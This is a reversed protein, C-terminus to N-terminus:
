ESSRCTEYLTAPPNYHPPDPHVGSIRIVDRSYSACRKYEPAGSKVSSDCLAWGYMNNTTPCDYYKTEPLKRQRANLYAKRGGGESFETYLMNTENTDVPKMIPSEESRMFSDRLAATDAAGTLLCRRRHWASNEHQNSLAPIGAGLRTKEIQESTYHKFKETCQTKQILKDKHKLFWKTRQKQAKNHCEIMFRQTAADAYDIPM